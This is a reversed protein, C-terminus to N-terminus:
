LTFGTECDMQAAQIADALEAGTDIVNSTNVATSKCFTAVRMRQTGYAPSAAVMLTLVVAAALVRMPRRM